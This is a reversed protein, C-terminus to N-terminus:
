SLAAKLTRINDPPVSKALSLTIQIPAQATRDNQLRKFFVITIRLLHCLLTIAENCSQSGAQSANSPLWSNM